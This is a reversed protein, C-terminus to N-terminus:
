FVLMGVKSETQTVESTLDKRSLFDYFLCKMFTVPADYHQIREILNTSDCFLLNIVKKVNEILGSDQDVM